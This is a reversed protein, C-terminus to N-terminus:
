QKAKRLELATFSSVRYRGSLTIMTSLDKFIKIQKVTLDEFSNIADHLRRSKWVTMNHPEYIHIESFLADTYGNLEGDSEYTDKKPYIHIIPDKITDPIAEIERYEKFVKSLYDVSEQHLDIDNLIRMEREGRSIEM